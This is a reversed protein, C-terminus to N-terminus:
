LTSISGPTGDNRRETKESSLFLLSLFFFVYSLAADFTHPFVVIRIMGDVETIYIEFLTFIFIDDM